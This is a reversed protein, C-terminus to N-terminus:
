ARALKASRMYPGHQSVALSFVRRLQVSAQLTNKLGTSVISVGDDPRDTFM